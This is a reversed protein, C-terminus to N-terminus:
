GLTQEKQAKTKGLLLPKMLRVVHGERVTKGVSGKQGLQSHGSAVKQKRKM